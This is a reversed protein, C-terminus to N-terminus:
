SRRMATINFVAHSFWKEFAYQQLKGALGKGGVLSEANIGQANVFNSSLQRVNVCEAYLDGDDDSASIEKTSDGLLGTIHVADGGVV